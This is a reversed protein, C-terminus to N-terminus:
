SDIVYKNCHAVALYDHPGPKGNRVGIVFSTLCLLCMKTGLVIHGFM